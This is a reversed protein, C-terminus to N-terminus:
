DGNYKVFRDKRYVFLTDSISNPGKDYVGQVVSRFKDLTGSRSGTILIVERTPIAVVIEGPFKIQGGTWLHDLLLLSPTYNYDDTAIATIGGDYAHLAIQQVVRMLNDRALERLRARDGTYESEALMRMSHESEEAYVVVLEDNIEDILQKNGKFQREIRAAWSRTKVLPVIRSEDLRAERSATAVKVQTRILEDLRHPEHTYVLYSGDVNLIQTVNWGLYEIRLDDAVIVVGSPAAAKIAAAIKETFVRPTLKDAMAPGGLGAIALLVGLLRKSM